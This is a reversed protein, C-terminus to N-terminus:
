KLLVASFIGESGELRSEHNRIEAEMNPKLVNFYYDSRENSPFKIEIKNPDLGLKRLEERMAELVEPLNFYEGVGEILQIFSIEGKVKSSVVISRILTAAYLKLALMATNDGALAKEYVPRILAELESQNNGTNLLYNGNGIEFPFDKIVGLTIAELIRQYVLYNEKQDKTLKVDPRKGDKNFISKRSLELDIFDTPTDHLGTLITMKFWLDYPLHAQALRQLRSVECITSVLRNLCGDIDKPDDENWSLESSKKIEERGKKELVCVNFRNKVHAAAIGYYANSPQLAFSM